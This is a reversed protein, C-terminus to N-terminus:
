SKAAKGGSKSTAGKFSAAEALDQSQKAFTAMQRELFDSQIKVMDEVTRANVMSKAYDFSASMNDEAFAIAREGFAKANEQADAASSELTGVAKQASAVYDEFAKRAHEMSQEAFDRMAEPIEFKDTM